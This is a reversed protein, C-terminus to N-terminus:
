RSLVTRPAGGQISCPTELRYLPKDLALVPAVALRFGIGACLVVLAM